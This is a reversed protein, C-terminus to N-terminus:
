RTQGQVSTTPQSRAFSQRRGPMVAHRELNEVVARLSEIDTGGHIEHAAAFSSGTLRAYRALLDGRTITRRRRAM